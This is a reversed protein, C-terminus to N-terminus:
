RQSSCGRGARERPHRNGENVQAHGLYQVATGPLRGFTLDLRRNLWRPGFGAFRGVVFGNRQLAGRLESPRIFLAPDHTGPPLLRLVREGITVIVFSALPNRNITDFLFLGEPRLVRGIESVVRDWGEIHELVDVCVVVDFTVAGFPLAEGSGVLYDIDLKMAGSHVRAAEIAATAPDIGTVTAGRAALAEAMFGGGCGLDLVRKGTWDGVLPDFFALRAPVMNRLARLWRADDGWWNASAGYISLDNKAGTAIRPLWYPVQRSYAVFADGFRQRFRM